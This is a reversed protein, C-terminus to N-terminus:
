ERATKISICNVDWIRWFRLPSLSTLWLSSLSQFITAWVVDLRLIPIHYFIWLNCIWFDFPNVLSPVKSEPIIEILDHFGKLELARPNIVILALVFWDISVCGIRDQSYWWERWNADLAHNQSQTKISLGHQGVCIYFRMITPLNYKNSESKNQLFM